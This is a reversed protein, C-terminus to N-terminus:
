DDARDSERVAHTVVYRGRGAQKARYMAADAQRVLATAVVVIDASSSWLEDLSAVLRASPRAAVVAPWADRRRVLVPGAAALGRSALRDIADFYAWAVSGAGIVAIEPARDRDLDTM